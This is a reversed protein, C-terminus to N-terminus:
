VTPECITTLNDAKRAPQGKGRPLNRTSMETLSQTSGLATTRSSPIPWNFFDLSRMLFRVWSRGAQLMTGWGVVYDRAGLVTIQVWLYVIIRVRRLINNNLYLLVFHTSCTARILYMIFAHLYKTPFRSFPNGRLIQGLYSSWIWIVKLFTTHRSSTFSILSARSFVTIFTRTGSFSPFVLIKVLQLM